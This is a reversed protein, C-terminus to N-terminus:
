TSGIWVYADLYGDDSLTVIVKEYYRSMLPCHAVRVWRVPNDATPLETETVDWATGSWSRTKPSVLGFTGTNSRYGVFARSASTTSTQSAYSRFTMYVGNNSVLDSVSGSVLFTSGLLNYGTPNYPVTTTASSASGVIYYNADVNVLSTVDGSVLSGTLINSSSPFYTTTGAQVTGAFLSSYSIAILIHLLLLQAWCSASARGFISRV